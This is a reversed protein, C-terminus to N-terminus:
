NGGQEFEVIHQGIQWYTQVINQNIAVITRQKAQLYTESIKDFLNNYNNNSSLIESMILQKLNFVLV